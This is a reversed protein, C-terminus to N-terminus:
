QCVEEPASCLLRAATEGWGVLAHRVEHTDKGVYYHGGLYSKWKCLVTELEQPGCRRDGAPPAPFAAVWSLLLRNCDVQAAYDHGALVELGARPEKYLLGIDRDFAVQQHACRELMDAAKFGIWPGHLPWWGVAAMVERETRSHSLSRVAAEPAPYRGAMEAVARVCKDGRFHRREASRPWRGGAPSPEVNAAARTCEAWFAPGEHESLWSAAGVHYFMWYASLWRCLQPEPLAAGCLAVYVPDLDRTRILQTGFERVSLVYGTDHM